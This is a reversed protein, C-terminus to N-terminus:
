PALVSTAMEGAPWRVVSRQRSRTRIAPCRTSRSDTSGGDTTSSAPTYRSVDRLVREPRVHDEGEYEIGIRQEPYAMDLWVARRRRDALVPYQVEPAPLGRLVLVMRLRSEMSSASRRDALGVVAALGARGRARPYRAALDLVEPPVFRGRNALADVAVVAEVLGLWRALDYATRVPTTVPVGDIVQYEDPCLRDRHVLLGPRPRLGGRLVTL